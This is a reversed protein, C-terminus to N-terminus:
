CVIKGFFHHLLQNLYFQTFLDQHPCEDTVLNIFVSLLALSFDVIVLKYM